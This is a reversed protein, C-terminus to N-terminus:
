RSARGSGNTALYSTTNWQKRGAGCAGYPAKETGVTAVSQPRVVRGTESLHIRELRLNKHAQANGREAPLAHAWRRCSDTCFRESGFALECKRRAQNANM